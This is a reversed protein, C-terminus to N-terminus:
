MLSQVSYVYADSLLINNTAFYLFILPLELSMEFVHRIYMLLFHHIFIRNNNHMNLYCNLHIGKLCEFCPMMMKGM